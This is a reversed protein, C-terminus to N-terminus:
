YTFGWFSARCTGTGAVTVNLGPTLSASIAQRMNGTNDWLYAQDPYGNANSGPNGVSAPRAALIGDNFSASNFGTTVSAASNSNLFQDFVAFFCMLVGNAEMSAPILYPWPLRLAGTVALNLRTDLRTILRLSRGNVDDSSLISAM